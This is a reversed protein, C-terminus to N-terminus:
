GTLRKAEHLLRNICFGYNEIEFLGTAALFSFVDPNADIWRANIFLTAPIMEKILYDILERGYGSRRSGGTLAIVKEDTDFRTMIGTINEEWDAPKRDAYESVIIRRFDYYREPRVSRIIKGYSGACGAFIFVILICFFPM